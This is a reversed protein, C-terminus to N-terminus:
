VWWRDEESNFGEELGYMQTEKPASMQLHHTGWRFEATCVRITLGPPGVPQELAMNIVLEHLARLTTSPFVGWLKLLRPCPDGGERSLPRGKPLSRM